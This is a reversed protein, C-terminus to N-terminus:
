CVALAPQGPGEPQFAVTAGELPQGDLLVEGAVPYVSKETCGIGSGILVFVLATLRFRRCSM